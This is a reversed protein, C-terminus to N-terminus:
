EETKETDADAQDDNPTCQGVYLAYENKGNKGNEFAKQQMVPTASMECRENTACMCRARLVSRMAGDDGRRVHRLSCADAPKCAARPQV